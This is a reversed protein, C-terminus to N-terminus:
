VSQDSVHRGGEEKSLAYVEAKFQMSLGLYFWFDARSFVTSLPSVSLSSRYSYILALLSIHHRLAFASCFSCFLGLSPSFTTLPCTTTPLRVKACASISGPAAIVQVFDDNKSPLIKM